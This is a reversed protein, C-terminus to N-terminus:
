YVGPVVRWPVRRAYDAYGDLERVLMADELRTRRLFIAVLLLLPVGAIWSGLAPGSLVAVILVALYMPHRVLRYPGADIVRQSRETQVRVASSAFPNSALVWGVLLFEATFALLSGVQVAVPVPSWGFRVDLGALVLHAVLPVVVLRRTARDRDSPPKMREAVLAPSTRELLVYTGGGTLWMAGVWAWFGWVDWRGAALSLFALMITCPVLLRIAIAM